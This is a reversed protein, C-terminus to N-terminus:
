EMDLARGGRCPAKQIAHAFHCVRAYLIRVVKDEPPSNQVSSLRSHM